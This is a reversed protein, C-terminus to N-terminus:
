DRSATPPEAPDAMLDEGVLRYSSGCACTAAIPDGSGAVSLDLTLGCRCAWGTQRAPVGLMLAHPRVDHTIVAGAGILAHAGITVGCVVTCNAGLTAGRCVLTRDFHDSTNRPVASRPTRVNTFVMSPGCFVEDELTVGEYVSVNNQIKVNDGIDVHGAVFVNQGLSCGDGIRATPMVHSFHWIRTGDGIRAGDDIVATEHAFFSM